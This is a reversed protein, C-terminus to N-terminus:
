SESWFFLSFFNRKKFVFIPAILIKSSISSVLFVVFRQESFPSFFDIPAIRHPVDFSCFSCLDLVNEYIRRM